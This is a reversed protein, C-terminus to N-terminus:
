GHNGKSQTMGTLLAFAWSLTIACLLTLGITRIFPTASLALLGFAILTTCASLTVSLIATVRHERGHRLFIGYDISLGLVLWFALLTFLNFPEGLWGFLGLTVLVAAAPPLLMRAADRAGFRLALVLGAVLAVGALLWSMVVRYRALVGNTQAIRDVFQVGDVRLAALASVDTIGALTVVSAYHGGVAGMWLHRLGASAPSSLWEEPELPASAAVFEARRRQIAAPEFGLAGMVGDLLAGPAYVERELLAHNRRQRELSPLGSTVGQWSALARGRVLGDLARGLREETELVSQPSGGTVLFFRSEVGGGLLERVRQEERLLAPPSQQFTKVDDQVRLRASGAIAAVALLAAAALAPANWRWRRLARDLAAGVAPGVRPPDGQIRALVPYLCVVCGAGVVLGTMCFVAIQELGPFPVLALVLYGLLTTALGLLIAPGVHRATQAADWPGPERFRDAFFHISYDIVSGILSSGFVLTLVHVEDFLLHVVTFAGLVALALTLMGLLLPRMSAFVVLLLIVVALSELTGFTKVESEARQASAAAHRIAGSGIVEVPVTVAASAAARARDLAPLVRQQTAGSFPNGASEALVVVYSRSDQEVVLNSGVVRANGLAPLSGRLYEGLFGLPDAALGLPAVVGSLTYASRLARKRLTAHSGTELMERDGASLLWARHELYLGFRKQLDTDLELQLNAFEGSERLRAAFASAAARAADLSGAGVLFLQRRALKASFEELAADMERTVQVHPLLALIDTEIRPQPLVRWAFLGLLAVMLLTWSIFRLRLPAANIV